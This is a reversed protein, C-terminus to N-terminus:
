MGSYFSTKPRTDLRREQDWHLRSALAMETLPSIYLPRERFQTLVYTLLQLQFLDAIRANNSLNISIFQLINLYM